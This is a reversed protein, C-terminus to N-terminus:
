PRVQLARRLSDVVAEPNTLVADNPYRFLRYGREKLVNARIEDKARQEPRAHYPGDIEIALRRGPAALDIVFGGLHFQRVFRAGLQFRRVRVWLVQEALTPNARMVRAHHVRRERRIARKLRRSEVVERGETRMQIAYRRRVALPVQASM